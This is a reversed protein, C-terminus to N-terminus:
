CPPDISQLLPSRQPLTRSYMSKNKLQWAHNLFYHALMFLQQLKRVIVVSGQTQRLNHWRRYRRGVAILLRVSFKLQLGYTTKRPDVCGAWSADVLTAM